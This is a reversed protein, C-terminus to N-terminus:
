SFFLLAVRLVVNSYIGALLDDLMVGWGRPAQELLRGPFPKVVDFFRNLLFGGILTGPGIPICLFTIFVSFAEDIVIRHDDRQRWEKEGRTSVYVGALFFILLFVLYGWRFDVLNEPLFGPLLHRLFLLGIIGGVAGATGPAVPSYGLYFFSAAFRVWWGGRYQRGAKM